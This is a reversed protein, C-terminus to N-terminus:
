GHAEVESCRFGVRFRMVDQKEETHRTLRTVAGFNLWVEYGVRCDIWHHM